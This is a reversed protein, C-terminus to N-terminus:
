EGREGNPPQVLVGAKDAFYYLVRHVAADNLPQLLGEIALMTGVESLPAKPKRERTAKEDDM